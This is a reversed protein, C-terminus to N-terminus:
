TLKEQKEQAKIVQWASKQAAQSEYKVGAFVHPHRRLMKENITTAVDDFTFQQHEQAIQAHFVIQFLLDGLEEKIQETDNQLLADIMEYTEERLYPILSQHTQALDWPCGDVSRLANMTNLLKEIALM